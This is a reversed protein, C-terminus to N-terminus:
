KWLQLYIAKGDICSFAFGVLSADAGTVPASLFFQPDSTPVPNGELLKWSEEVVAIVFKVDGEALALGGPLANAMRQAAVESPLPTPIDSEDLEPISQAFSTVELDYASLLLSIGKGLVPIGRWSYPKLVRWYAGVLDNENGTLTATDILKLDDEYIKEEIGLDSLLQNAVKMAESKQKADDLTLDPPVDQLTKAFYRAVKGDRGFEIEYEETELILTGESTPQFEMEAPAGVSEEDMPRLVAIGEHISKALSQERERPVDVSTSIENTSLQDTETALVKAVVWICMVCVFALALFVRKRTVIEM